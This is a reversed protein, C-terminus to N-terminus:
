HVPRLSWSDHTRACTARTKVNACFRIPSCCSDTVYNFLSTIAAHTVQGDSAIFTLKRPAEKSKLVEITDCLDTITALDSPFATHEDHHSRPFADASNKASLESLPLDFIARNAAMVVILCVMKLPSACSCSRSGPNSPTSAEPEM